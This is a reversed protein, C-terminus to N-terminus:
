KKKATMIVESPVNYVSLIPGMSCFRKAYCLADAEGGASIRHGIMVTAAQALGFFIVMSVREVTAFINIAAIIGTGMRAYVVAFM